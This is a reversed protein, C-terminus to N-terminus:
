RPTQEDYRRTDENPLDLEDKLHTWLLLTQTSFSAGGNGTVDVTV